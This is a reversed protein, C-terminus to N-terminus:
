RTGASQDTRKFLHRVANHHVRWSEPGYGGAFVLAIPIQRDMCSDIVFEDREKLQELTLRFGRSSALVDKEYADSGQVFICIDPKFENLLKNVAAKLRPLYQAAEAHAISLDVTSKEKKHPWAEASFISITKVSEDGSFISATGNGQHFDVDVVLATKIKGYKQLWRIAIAVDNIACFGGGNAAAAHHYGAGLNAAAGHKLALRAALLTGGSKLKFDDLLEPLARTAQPRFHQHIGFIEDWVASKELSKLYESTHVLRLQADTLPKPRMGSMKRNFERSLADLVLQGRDLAFPTSIGFAAMDTNYRPSHVLINRM